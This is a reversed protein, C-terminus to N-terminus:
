RNTLHRFFPLDGYGANHALQHLTTQRFSGTGFLCAGCRAFSACRSFMACIPGAWGGQDRVVLKKFIVAWIIAALLSNLAIRVNVDSMILILPLMTFFLITWFLGDGRLLRFNTAIVHFFQGDPSPQGGQLEEYFDIQPKPEYRSVIVGCVPCVEWVKAQPRQCAPCTWVDQTTPEYWRCSDVDAPTLFGKDLLRSFARQLGRESLGYKRQLSITSWASRVDNALETARMTTGPM